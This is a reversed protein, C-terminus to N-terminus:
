YRGHSNLVAAVNDADGPAVEFFTVGSLSWRHSLKLMQALLHQANTLLVDHQKRTLHLNKTM